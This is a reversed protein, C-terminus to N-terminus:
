KLSARTPLQAKAPRSLGSVSRGPLTTKLAEPRGHFVSPSLFDPFITASNCSAEFPGFLNVSHHLDSSAIFYLGEATELSYGQGVMTCPLRSVHFRAQCLFRCCM